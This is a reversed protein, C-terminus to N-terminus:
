EANGLYCRHHFTKSGGLAFLLPIQSSLLILQQQASGSGAVPITMRIVCCSVPLAAFAVTWRPVLFLPLADLADGRQGSILAPTRSAQLSRARSLARCGRAARPEPCLHVPLHTGEEPKTQGGKGRRRGAPIPDPPPSPQSSMRAGVRPPHLTPASSPGSGVDWPLEGPVLARGAAARGATPFAAPRRRTRACACAHVGVHVCAHVGMGVCAHVCACICVCVFACVCFCMCALMSM